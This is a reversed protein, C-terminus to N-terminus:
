EGKQPFVAILDDAFGRNSKRGSVRIKGEDELERLVTKYNRALYPTDVSHSEYIKRMSLKRGAFKELLMERLDDLPRNLDFLLQQASSTAPSYTFSPVGQVEESRSNAMIEKMVEYGRFHKTVLILHHTSRKGSSNKFCFPLVFRDGPGLSKLALALENVITAEREDSNMGDLKVALQDAREMGFLARMHDRVLPNSLGMSIRNYNFFFICDCGWNKLFANVLQLSLGKYGWPDIFALLPITNIEQFQKAIKDGVEENWIQPPIKLREIGPIEKISEQLTQVNKEDKDNFITVLRDVYTGKGLARQLVRIPTSIAGDKYRGPGAFLDIYGIRDVQGPRRYRNQAGAIIEAWTDFYKEVIEAKVMSQETTEDFFKDTAM